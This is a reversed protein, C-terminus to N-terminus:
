PGLIQDGEKLDAVVEWKDAAKLGIDNIEVRRRKEGEQVIVFKLGKYERIAAPPIMLADDKRGLVANLFVSQGLIIQTTQMEKPVSFYLYTATTSDSNTDPLGREPKFGPLYQVKFGDKAESTLLLTIDSDATLHQSADVDYESRVILNSPDGVIFANSYADVTQGARVSSKIVVGDYPAVIQRENLLSELRAVGLQNRKVSQELSTNVDATTIELSQQALDLNQQTIELNLQARVRDVGLSEQVSLKALEVQKQLIVVNAKAQELAFQHQAKSKALDAQAVELDINAQQLQNALDSNDLEALIDGAKVPDGVKVAVRVIHGGARFFLTDQKSATVEGLIKKDSVIPGKEVKFITQDYKVVLPLPTPTSVAGGGPSCAAVLVGILILELGKILRTLM